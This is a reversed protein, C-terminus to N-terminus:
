NRPLMIFRLPPLEVRTDQLVEGRFFRVMLEQVRTDPLTSEHGANEVVVHVARAFGRRLEEVQEPPTQSDLSGSIFLTPVSTRLPARYDDGLDPVNVAACRQEFFINAVDGLVTGAVEREIRAKRNASVGSACDTAVSMVSLMRLENFRRDAIRTLYTGDGRVMEAIWQPYNPLDNTDGLDRFILYRLGYEGIPLDVDTQAGRDRVKVIWPERRARDVLQQVAAKLNPLVRRVGTDAAALASIHDLQRETTSPLKWNHDPGEVGALVAREIHAAHRRITALGLHTGYSFGFLSLKPVGLAIRLANIDDASQESNFVGVDVGKARWETTCARVRETYLQATRAETTFVDTPLPGTATCIPLPKSSGTGRQDLLIVDAVARLKQFLDLYLGSRAAAIGSAGPGGALYVVPAAPSTSTSRLRVVALEFKAGDPKNHDAPVPLTGQEIEFTQRGITVTRSTFSLPQQAYASAASLLACSVAVLRRWGTMIRLM